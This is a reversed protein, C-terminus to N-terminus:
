NERQRHNENEAKQKYHNIVHLILLDRKENDSLGTGFNFDFFRHSISQKYKEYNQKTSESTISESITSALNIAEIMRQAKAACDDCEEEVPNSDDDSYYTNCVSVGEKGYKDNIKSTVENQIIEKYKLETENEIAIIDDLIQLKKSM